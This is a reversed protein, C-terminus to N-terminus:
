VGRTDAGPLASQLPSAPTAMPLVMLLAFIIHRM